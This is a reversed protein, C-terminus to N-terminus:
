PSDMEVSYLPKTHAEDEFIEISDLHADMRMPDNGGTRTETLTSGPTVAARMKDIYMIHLNFRGYIIRDANKADLMRQLLAKGEEPSMPIGPLDFPKDVVARYTKPLIRM